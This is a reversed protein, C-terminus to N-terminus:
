GTPAWAKDFIFTIITSVASDNLGGTVLCRRLSLVLVPGHLFLGGATGPNSRQVPSDGQWGGVSGCHCIQDEESARVEALPVDDFLRGEARARVSQYNTATRCLRSVKM